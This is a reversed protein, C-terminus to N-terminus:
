SHPGAHVFRADAKMTETRRRAGNESVDPFEATLVATLDSRPILPVPPAMLAWGNKPNTLSSPAGARGNNVSCSASSTALTISTSSRQSASRFPRCAHLIPLSILDRRTTPSIRRVAVGNISKEAFGTNRVSGCSFIAVGNGGSQKSLKMFLM